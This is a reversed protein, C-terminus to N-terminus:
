RAPSVGRSMVSFVCRIFKPISLKLKMQRNLVADTTGRLSVAPLVLCQICCDNFYAEPCSHLYMWAVLKQRAILTRM